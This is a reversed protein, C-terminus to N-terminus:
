THESHSMMGASVRGTGGTRKQEPRGRQPDRSPRERRDSRETESPYLFLCFFLLSVVLMWLLRPIGKKRIALCFNTMKFFFNMLLKRVDLMHLLYQLKTMM